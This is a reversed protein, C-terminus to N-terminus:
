LGGGIETRTRIYLGLIFLISFLITIPVSNELITKTKPLLNVGESLGQVNILIDAVNNILVAGVITLLLGIVSIAFFIPNSVIRWASLLVLVMFTGLLLVMTNDLTKILDIYGSILESSTQTNNFVGSSQIEVTLKGFVAFMIFFILFFSIIFFGELIQAKM